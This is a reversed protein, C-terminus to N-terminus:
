LEQSEGSAREEWGDDRWWDRRRPVRQLVPFRHGQVTHNGVSVWPMEQELVRSFPQLFGHRTSDRIRERKQIRWMHREPVKGRIDLRSPTGSLNARPHWTSPRSLVRRRSHLQSSTARFWRKVSPLKSTGCLTSLTRGSVKLGRAENRHGGRVLAHRLWSLKARWTEKSQFDRVWAIWQYNTKLKTRSCVNQQSCSWDEDGQNYRIISYSQTDIRQVNWISDERSDM